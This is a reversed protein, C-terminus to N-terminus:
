EVNEYFKGFISYYDEIQRPIEGLIEESLENNNGSYLRNKFEEYEVFKIFDRKIVRGNNDISTKEGDDLPKMISFDAQGIGVIIISLPLSECNNLIKITKDIDNMTGDTLIMLIEYHNHKTPDNLRIILNDRVQKIIPAFFTPGYLSVKNFSDKYAKIVNEILYIDPSEQFNINFCHSVKKQDKLYGGFGYCSFIQNRDYYAVISGCSIIAKEYDNLQNNNIYHLSNPNDPSDNSMTYDIAINLNIELGGKLYEIFTKKEKSDYNIKLKGIQEPSNLNKNLLLEIEKLNELNEISCQTCGEIENNRHLEILIFESKFNCLDSLNLQFQTLTYINPIFEKSKYCDRWKEDKNKRKLLIFYEGTKIENLEVKILFRSIKNIDSNKIKQKLELKIIGYESDGIEIKKSYLFNRSGMINGVAVEMEYFQINNELINLKLIQQKEFFYNFTFITGFDISDGSIVETEGIYEFQNLTRNNCISVKVKYNNLNKVENMSIYLEVEQYLHELATNNRKSIGEEIKNHFIYEGKPYKIGIFNTNIINSNYNTIQKNRTKRKSSECLGM